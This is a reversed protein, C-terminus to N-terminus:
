ILSHDSRTGRKWVVERGQAATTRQYHVSETHAKADCAAGIRIAVRENRKGLRNFLHLGLACAAQGFPRCLSRVERLRPQIRLHGGLKADEELAHAGVCYRCLMKIKEDRVRAVV